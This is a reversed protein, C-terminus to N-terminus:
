RAFYHQTYSGIHTMQPFGLLGRLLTIGVTLHEVLWSLQNWMDTV